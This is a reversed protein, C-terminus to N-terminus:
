EGSVLETRILALISRHPVILFKKGEYDIEVADGRLFIAYDGEQAELPIYKPRKGPVQWSAEDLVSSDSVLYGPGTKVVHGGHAKEKERVGEPLYLGAETRGRSDDPRILVRDGVVMLEKTSKM